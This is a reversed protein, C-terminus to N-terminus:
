GDGFAKMEFLSRAEYVGRAIARAVCDAALAGIETIAIFDPASLPRAGTALVFLTDGDMPSHVPRIARAIGDQAMIAVRRAEAPTLAANTAVVGITTNQGPGADLKTGQTFDFSTAFDTPPAHGGFEDGQEFPWAWFCATGPMMVSGFSNVAMLAAVQLGEATILSASGLGGKVRGAQAGYGAGVTGLPFDSHSSVADAAEIAARGLRAYPSAEGWSKDGGNTLDFLIAAPVVPSVLPARGLRFGRGRAGLWDTVSSAAALGYSSGGSLVIADVAEVLTEPALADTERTGPGGGRCEVAAVARAAPLIVSAGTGVGTDHAHGVALGDVDCLYNRPGPKPPSTM